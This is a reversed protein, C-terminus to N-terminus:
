FSISIKGMVSRARPLTGTDLRYAVSPDADVDPDFGNYKKWLLLNEGSLSFNVTRVYKRLKKPPTYDYSVSLTKLRLFSADHVFTDSCYIEKRDARPINSDPNDPTWAGSMYRYHNYSAGGAGLWVESINYM